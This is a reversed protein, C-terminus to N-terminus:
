CNNTWFKDDGGYTINSKAVEFWRAIEKLYKTLRSLFNIATFGAEM